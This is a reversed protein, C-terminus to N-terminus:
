SVKMMIVLFLTMFSILSLRHTHADKWTSVYTSAESNSVISKIKNKSIM